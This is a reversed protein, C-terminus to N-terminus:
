KCLAFFNGNAHALGYTGNDIGGTSLHVFYAHTSSHPTVTWTTGNNWIGVLEPCKKNSCITTTASCKCDIGINFLRRSGGVDDKLGDCWTMANWWDMTINSKCYKHGTVVGEVITGAGNACTTEEALVGFSIVLIGCTLILINRM